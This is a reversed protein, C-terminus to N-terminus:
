LILVALWPYAGVVLSWPGLVPPLLFPLANDACPLRGDLLHQPHTYLWLYLYTLGILGLTLSLLAIMITIVGAAAPADDPV